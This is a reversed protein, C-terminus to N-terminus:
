CRDAQMGLAELPSIIKLDLVSSEVTLVKGAGVTKAKVFAGRAASHQIGSIIEFVVDPWHNWICLAGPVFKDYFSKGVRATACVVGSCVGESQIGNM